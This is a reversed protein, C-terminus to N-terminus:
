RGFFAFTFNLQLLFTLKDLNQQYTQATVTENRFELDTYRKPSLSVRWFPYELFASLGITRYKANAYGNNKVRIPFALKGGLRLSGYMSIAFDNVNYAITDVLGVNISDFGIPFGLMLSPLINPFYNKRAQQAFDYSLGFIYGWKVSLLEETNGRIDIPNNPSVYVFASNKTGFGNPRIKSFDLGFGYYNQKPIYTPSFSFDYVNRASSPMSFVLVLGVVIYGYFKQMAEVLGITENNINKLM